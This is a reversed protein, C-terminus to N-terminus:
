QRLLQEVGAVMEKVEIDEGHYAARIMGQKDVLLFRTSHIVDYGDPSQAAHSDHGGTSEVTVAPATPLPQKAPFGVKFGDQLLAEIEAESGTLFCWLGPKAGYRTGYEQLVDPTDRVPDVTFSVLQVQEGLGKALLHNQLAMMKPSLYAPCAGPCNTFIFNAVWVKGALDQSGFPQSSEDILSFQPADFLVGLPEAAPGCGALASAAVLLALLTLILGHRM